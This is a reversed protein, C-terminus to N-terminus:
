NVLKTAHMIQKLYQNRVTVWHPKLLSDILIRSKLVEYKRKRAIIKQPQPFAQLALNEFHIRMRRLKSSKRPGGKILAYVKVSYSM